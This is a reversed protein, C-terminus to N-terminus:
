YKIYFYGATADYDAATVYKFSPGMGYEKYLSQHGTTSGIAGQQALPGGNGNYGNSKISYDIIDNQIPTVDLVGGAGSTSGGAIIISTDNKKLVSDNNPISTSSPHGNYFGAVQGVTVKYQGASLKVNGVFASGSGGFLGWPIPMGSYPSPATWYNLPGGGGVIAISATVPSSISFSYEGPETWEYEAHGGGTKGYLLEYSVVSFM